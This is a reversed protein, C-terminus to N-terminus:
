FGDGARWENFETVFVGLAVIRTSTSGLVHGSHMKANHKVKDLPVRLEFVCQYFMGENGLPIAVAYSFPTQWNESAALMFM